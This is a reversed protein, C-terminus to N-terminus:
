PNVKGVNRGTKKQTREVTGQHVIMGYFEDGKFDGDRTQVLVTASWKRKAKGARVKISRKLAGTREPARQKAEAQILKAGARLAPRLHKRIVKPALESLLKRVDRSAKITVRGVFAM